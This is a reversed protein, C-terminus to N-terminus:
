RQWPTRVRETPAPAGATGHVNAYLPEVDGFAGDDFLAESEGRSIGEAELGERLRALLKELRRYLKKQNIHLARAIDAVSVGDEFQMKLILREEASLVQKVRDLATQVRKALFDHERRLVNADPLPGASPVSGAELEGVFQRAPARKALRVCVKQLAADVELGYHTRLTEVVEDFSRGDRVVLREVLIATPGQRKAEVSPRWRGWLRNRYDLFLNNVVVMLYTRLKSRGEFKRLPEYNREIIHLRVESAFDDAEDARLHNRRCVQGIAGDIIPLNALFLAEDNVTADASAHSHGGSSAAQRSSFIRSGPNNMIARRSVVNEKRDM